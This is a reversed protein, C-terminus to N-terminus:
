GTAPASLLGTKALNGLWHASPKPTRTFTTRDVAILGFTPTYSTPPYWWARSRCQTPVSM